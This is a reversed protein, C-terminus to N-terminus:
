IRRALERDERLYSNRVRQRVDEGCELHARREREDARDDSLVKSSRAPNQALEDDGLRREKSKRVGPRRDHHCGGHANREEKDDERDLAHRDRPVRRGADCVRRLASQDRTLSTTMRTATRERDNASTATM